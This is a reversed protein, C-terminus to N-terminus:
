ITTSDQQEIIRLLLGTCTLDACYLQCSIL